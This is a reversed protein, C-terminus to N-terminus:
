GLTEEIVAGVGRLASEEDRGDACLTVTDGQTVELGLLAFLGKASASKGSSPVTLTIESQYRQAEKVILGAPRAHLGLADNIMFNKQLM